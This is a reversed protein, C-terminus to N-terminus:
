STSPSRTSNKKRILADAPPHADMLPLLSFRSLFSPLPSVAVLGMAGERQHCREWLPPREENFYIM